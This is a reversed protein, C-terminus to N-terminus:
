GKLWTYKEVSYLHTGPILIPTTKVYNQYVPDSGYNRNQRIELRRAGGFMVYIIGIYGILPILWQAIGTYINLGSIFMGTWFLMEGFYNPCRVYKYLGTDVFRHPNKKKAENKQYDATSELIVGTISIVLGIICFVDTGKHDFLRIWVPSTECVYLLSASIWIMAKVFFSMGKGSKIEKKMTANYSASKIERYALFMWLRCGYVILLICQLLTGTSLVGHYMGLLAAGTLAVALGYGVSIFWVYKKFGCISAILSVGLLILFVKTM